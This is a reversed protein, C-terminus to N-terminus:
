GIGSDVGPNGRLRNHTDLVRAGLAKGSGDMEMKSERLNMTNLELHLLGKKFNKGFQARPVVPKLRINNFRIPAPHSNACGDSWMATNLIKTSSASFANGPM